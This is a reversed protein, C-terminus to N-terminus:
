LLFFMEGSRKNAGARIQDCIIRGMNISQGKVICALLLVCELNLSSTHGTPMLSHRLFSFWVIAEVTLFNRRCTKSGQKSLIWQMGSVTVEQLLKAGMEYTLNALLSSYYDDNNNYNYLDFLKNIARPNLPVQRERM